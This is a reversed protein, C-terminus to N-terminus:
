TGYGHPPIIAGCRWDAHTSGVTWPKRHGYMLRPNSGLTSSIGLTGGIRMTYCGEIDWRPPLEGAGAVRYSMQVHKKKACVSFLFFMLKSESLSPGQGGGLVDRMLLRDPTRFTGNPTNLCWEGMGSRFAPCHQTNIVGGLTVARRQRHQICKEFGKDYVNKEVACRSVLFFRKARGRSKAGLFNSIKSAPNRM